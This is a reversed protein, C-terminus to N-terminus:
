TEGLIEEVNIRAIKDKDIVYDKMCHCGRIIIFSFITNILDKEIDDVYTEIKEGNKLEIIVKDM